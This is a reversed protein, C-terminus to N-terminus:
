RESFDLAKRNVRHINRAFPTESQLTERHPSNTFERSDSNNRSQMQPSLIVASASSSLPLYDTERWAQGSRSPDPDIALDRRERGSSSGVASARGAAAAGARICARNKGRGRPARSDAGRLNPKLAEITVALAQARPPWNTSWASANGPKRIVPMREAADDVGGLLEDNRTRARRHRCLIDRGHCPLECRTKM